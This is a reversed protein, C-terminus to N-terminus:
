KLSQKLEFVLDAYKRNDPKLDQAMLADRLAMNLDGMEAWARARGFLSPASQPRIDLAKSFADVAEKYEGLQFRAWGLSTFVTPLEERQEGYQLARNYDDVAEAYGKNYFRADGRAKYLNFVGYELKPTPATVEMTSDYVKPQYRGSPEGGAILRLATNFDMIARDYNRQRYYALGRNYYIVYNDRGEPSMELAKTFSDIARDYEAKKYWAVGQDYFDDAYRVPEGGACGSLWLGILILVWFYKGKGM